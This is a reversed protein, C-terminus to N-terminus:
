SLISVTALTFPDKKAENKCDPSASFTHKELDHSHGTNDIHDQVTKSESILDRSLNSPMMYENSSTPSFNVSSAAHIGSGNEELLSQRCLLYCFLQIEPAYNICFHYFLKLM